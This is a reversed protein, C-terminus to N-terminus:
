GSGPCGRGACKTGVKVGHGHEFADQEGQEDEEQQGLEQAGIAAHGGEAVACIQQGHGMGGIIDAGHHGTGAVIAVAVLAGVRPIGGDGGHVVPQLVVDVLRAVFHVEAAPVGVGGALM